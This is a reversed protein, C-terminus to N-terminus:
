KQFLHLLIVFVNKYLASYKYIYMDDHLRMMIVNFRLSIKLLDDMFDLDTFRFNFIINKNKNPM